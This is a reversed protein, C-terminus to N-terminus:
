ARNSSHRRIAFGGFESGALPWLETHQLIDTVTLTVLILAIHRHDTTKLVHSKTIIFFLNMIHLHTM